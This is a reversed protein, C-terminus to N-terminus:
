PDIWLHLVFTRADDLIETSKREPYQKTFFLDLLDGLVVTAQYPRLPSKNKEHLRQKSNNM